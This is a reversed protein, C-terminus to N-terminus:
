LGALAEIASQMGEVVRAMRDFDLHETTDTPEHYYRYRYPLTDTVMVGAYGCQWFAWHDSWGVGPLGSPLAAGESPFQAHQRFAGVTRKLLARSRTNGLFAVFNGTSPYLLSFPFPYRQSHKQDSYFGLGDFSIMAIINDDNRQCQRAYMLSGMRDTQFFPPEENVFAVFRITRPPSRDAFRRALALLAAVGTANDNAGPCGAVSDYHAGIVVIQDQQADGQLTAEINDVTVGSVEYSQRRVTHGAERFTQEIYTASSRLNGDNWINREGIQEALTVVCSRLDASLKVQRDSLPPLPDRYSHGPMKLM